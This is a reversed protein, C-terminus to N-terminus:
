RWLNGQQLALLAGRPSITSVLQGRVANRGTGTLASTTMGQLNAATARGSLTVQIERVVTAYNPATVVGPSDAWGAGTLYRVQLDEIGRAVLQWPANPPANTSVNPNLPDTRGFASRWLAPTTPDNPDPAIEYRVLQIAAVFECTNAPNCAVGGTPDMWSQGPPANTHGGCSGGGGGGPPQLFILGPLSNSPAPGGSGYVYAMTPLNFCSPPVETTNIVVGPTGDGSCVSLAPCSGANAMMELFDAQEAAVLASPSSGMATPPNNLLTGGPDTNTFAQVFATMGSGASVVDRSILDMALRINQQRDALEPERRFASNGATLLGFIAGTVVLTMMMAVLLEILTFGGQRTDLRTKM